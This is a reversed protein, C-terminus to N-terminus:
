NLESGSATTRILEIWQSNFWQVWSLLGNRIKCHSGRSRPGHGDLGAWAPPFPGFLISFPLNNLKSLSGELKKPLVLWGM